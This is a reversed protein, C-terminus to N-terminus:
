PPDINNLDVEHYPFHRITLEQDPLLNLPIPRGAADLPVPHPVLEGDVDEIREIDLGDISIQLMSVNPIDEWHGREDYEFGYTVFAYEVPLGGGDPIVYRTEADIQTCLVTYDPYGLFTVSNVKGLYLAAVEDTYNKEWRTFTFLRNFARYQSPVEPPVRATNVIFSGPVYLSVGGFFRDRLEGIRGVHHRVPRLVEQTRWAKTPLRIEPNTIAAPNSTALVQELFDNDSVRQGYHIDIDVVLRGEEDQPRGLKRDIAFLYGYEPHPSNFAPVDPHGWIETHPTNPDDLVAFYAHHYRQDFEEGDFASRKYIGVVAM